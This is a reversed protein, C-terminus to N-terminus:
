TKELLQLIALYHKQLEETLKENYNDNRKYGECFDSM